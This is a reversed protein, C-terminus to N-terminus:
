LLQEYYQKEKRSYKYYILRYRIGSMESVEGLTKMEGKYMIRITNRKNRGNVLPSVFTCTNPSYLLGNGKIDKDLRLGVRWGNEMAWKCFVNIKGKWEECVEVGRGGYLYYSIDTKLYCRDMMSWYAKRLKLHYISKRKSPKTRIYVGTPM